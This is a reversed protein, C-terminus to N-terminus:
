INLPEAKTRSVLGTRRIGPVLVSTQRVALLTDLAQWEGQVLSTGGHHEQCNGDVCYGYVCHLYDHIHWGWESKDTVGQIGGGSEEGKSKDGVGM